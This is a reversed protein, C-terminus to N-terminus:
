NGRIIHPTIMAAFKVGNKPCHLLALVTKGNPVIFPGLARERQNRAYKVTLSVADKPLVEPTLEFTLPRVHSWAGTRVIMRKAAEDFVRNSVTIPKGDPFWFKPLAYVNKDENNEKIIQDMLYAEIEDLMRFGSSPHKDYGIRKLFGPEFRIIDVRFALQPTEHTTVYDARVGSSLPSGLLVALIMRAM